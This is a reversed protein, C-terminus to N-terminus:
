MRQDPLELTFTTGVGERSQFTLDGRQARAFVRCNYLGVGSGGTKKSAFRKFIKPQIEAPIGPGNDAVELLHRSKVRKLHVAIRRHERLPGESLADMSNRILNMLIMAVTPGNLKAPQDTPADVTLTIGLAKCRTELIACENRVADALDIQQIEELDGSSLKSISRINRDIRDISMDISTQAASVDTDVIGLQGLRVRINDAETRIAQLPQRLEHALGDAVISLSHLRERELQTAKETRARKWRPEAVSTRISDDLFEIQERLITILARAADNDLLAERGTTDQLGPHRKRSISVFGFLRSPVVHAHGARKARKEAVGLWDAAESGFPEVRFGDRYIRVGPALDGARTKTPRKLFYLFSSELGTLRKSEVASSPVVAAAKTKAGGTARLTRAVSGDGLVKFTLQFDPEVPGRVVVQGPGEIGPARLEIVFDKPPSLPNLLKSLEARLSIVQGRTWPERLGRIKLVTGSKDSPLAAVAQRQVKLKVDSFRKKRDRFENWDVSATLAVADSKTKTAIELRSGLRDTAFRGIGKEGTPVRKARLVQGPRESYGAFMFLREFDRESMGGGDDSVTIEGPERSGPPQIAITVRRARADYANKVLEVLAFDQNRFLERGILAQLYASAEFPLEHVADGKRPTM